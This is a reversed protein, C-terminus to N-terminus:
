RSSNPVIIFMKEGPRKYDFKSKFDKALNELHSFYELDAQLSKNEEILKVVEQRTKDLDGSLHREQGYLRYLQYGAAVLIFVLFISIVTRM